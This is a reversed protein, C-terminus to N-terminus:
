KESIWYRNGDFYVYVFSDVKFYKKSWVRYVSNKGDIVYVYGNRAETVKLVYGVDVLHM